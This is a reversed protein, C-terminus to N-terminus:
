RGCPVRELSLYHERHRFGAGVAWCMPLLVRYLVQWWRCGEMLAAEELEKPIALFAQRMLFVGFASTFYPMM